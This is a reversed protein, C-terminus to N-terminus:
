HVYCTKVVINLASIRVLLKMLISKNIYMVYIYVYILQIEGDTALKPNMGGTIQAVSFKKLIYGTCNVLFRIM